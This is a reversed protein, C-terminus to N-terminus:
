QQSYVDYLEVLRGHPDQVAVHNRLRVDVDFDRQYTTALHPAGMAHLCSAVLRTGGAGAVSNGYMLGALNRRKPAANGNQGVTVRTRAAEM